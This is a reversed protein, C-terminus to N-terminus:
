KERPAEDASANTARSELAPSCVGHARTSKSGGAEGNDPSSRCHVFARVDRFKGIDLWIWDQLVPGSCPASTHVTNLKLQRLRSTRHKRAKYPGVPEFAKGGLSSGDCIESVHLGFCDVYIIYWDVLV